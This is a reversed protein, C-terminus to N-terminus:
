DLQDLAQQVATLGLLLCKLRGPTIEPLGFLALVEAQGWQQVELISKGIVAVAVADMHAQSIICGQGQWKVNQIQQKQEDLGVEVSVVDGCSANRLTTQADIQKLHGRCQPHHAADLLIDSYLSDIEAPTTTSSSM